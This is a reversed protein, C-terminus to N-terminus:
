ASLPGRTQVSVSPSVESNWCAVTVWYHSETGQEEDDDASESDHDATIVQDARSRIRGIGPLRGYEKLGPPFAEVGLLRIRPVVVPRCLLVEAPDDISITLTALGQDLILDADGPKAEPVSGRTLTIEPACTVVEAGGLGLVPAGSEFGGVETADLVLGGVLGRDAKLGDALLVVGSPFELGEKPLMPCARKGLSRVPSEDHDIGSASIRVVLEELVNEVLLIGCCPEFAGGTSGLGKGVKELAEPLVRLGVFVEGGLASGGGVSGGERRDLFCQCFSTQGGETVFEREGVKPTHRKGSEPESALVVEDDHTDGAFRRGDVVGKAGFNSALGKRRILGLKERRNEAERRDGEM